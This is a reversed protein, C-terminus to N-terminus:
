SLRRVMWPLSESASLAVSPLSKYSSEGLSGSKTTTYNNNNHPDKKKDFHQKLPPSLHMHSKISFFEKWEDRIDSSMVCIFLFVFLGQLSNFITFLIQFTERLGQVSFTLIAFIWTLGFLSMVGGISFILRVAEKKAISQKKLDATKKMHKILVVIVCVFIIANLAIITLIPALFAGWFAGRHSLFCSCAHYSM